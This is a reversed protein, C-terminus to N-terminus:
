GKAVLTRLFQESWQYDAAARLAAQAAESATGTARHVNVSVTAIESAAEHVSLAIRAGDLLSEWQVQGQGFAARKASPVSRMSAVLQALWSGNMVEVVFSFNHGVAVLPTHHLYQLVKSMFVGARGFDPEPNDAEVLFVNSEVAWRYGRCRWRWGPGDVRMEAEVDETPEIIGQRMCWQPQIIAPNFSGLATANASQCQLTMLRAAGFEARFM